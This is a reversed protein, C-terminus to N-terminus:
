PITVCTGATGAVGRCLDTSNRVMPITVTPFTSPSNYRFSGSIVGTEMRTQNNDDRIPDNFQLSWSIQPLPFSDGSLGTASWTTTLDFNQEGNGPAALTGAAIATVALNQTTPNTTVQNPTVQHQQQRSGVCAFTAATCTVSLDGDTLPTTTRSWIFRNKLDIGTHSDTSPSFDGLFTSSGAIFSSLTDSGPASPIAMGQSSPSFRLDGCNLGALGETVGCKAPDAGPDSIIGFMNDTVAGPGLLNFFPGSVTGGLAPATTTITQSFTIPGAGDPDTGSHRILRDPNFGPCNPCAGASGTSLRDIGQTNSFFDPTQAGGEAPYAICLFVILYFIPVM